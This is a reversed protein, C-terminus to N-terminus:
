TTSYLNLLDQLAYLISFELVNQQFYILLKATSFSRVNKKQPFLLMEAYMYLAKSFKADWECIVMDTKFLQVM